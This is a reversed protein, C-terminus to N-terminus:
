AFLMAPATNNRQWATPDSLQVSDMNFCQRRACVAQCGSFRCALPTRVASLRGGVVLVLVVAVAVVVVVVVVVVM